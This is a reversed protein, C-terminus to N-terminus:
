GTPCVLLACGREDSGDACNPEFDCHSSAPVQEGSDCQFTAPSPCGLEDSGDACDPRDDCQWTPAIQSGDGCMFPPPCGLEDSNDSCNQFGDCVDLLGLAMGDCMHGHIQLCESECRDALAVENRCILGELEGCSGGAYCQAICAEFPDSTDSFPKFVGPTLLGCAVLTDPLTHSGGDDGDGGHCSALPLLALPALLLAYRAM